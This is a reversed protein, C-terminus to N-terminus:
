RGRGLPKALVNKPDIVEFTDGPDIWHPDFLKGKAQRKARTDPTPEPYRRWDWSGWRVESIKTPWDGEVIRIIERKVQPQPPGGPKRAQPKSTASVMKELDRRAAESTIDM